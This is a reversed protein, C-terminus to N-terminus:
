NNQNEFPKKIIDIHKQKYKEVEADLEKLENELGLKFEQNVVALCQLMLISGFIYASLVLTKWHDPRAGVKWSKWSDDTRHVTAFPGGHAYESATRYYKDYIV